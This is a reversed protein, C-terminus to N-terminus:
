LRHRWPLAPDQLGNHQALSRVQVEASVQAAATLNKVWQELVSLSSNICSFLQLIELNNCPM